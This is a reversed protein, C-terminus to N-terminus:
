TPNTELSDHNTERRLNAEPSDHNHRGGPTPRPRTMITELELNTEPSDHSRRGVSTPRSCIM